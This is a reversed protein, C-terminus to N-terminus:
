GEQLSAFSSVLRAEGKFAQAHLVHPLSKTFFHYAGSPAPLGCAFYPICFGFAFLASILWSLFVHVREAPSPAPAITM